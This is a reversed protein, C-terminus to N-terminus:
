VLTPADLWAPAAGLPTVTATVLEHTLIYWWAKTYMAVMDYRTFSKNFCNVLPMAAARNTIGLAPMLTSEFPKQAPLNALLYPTLLTPSITDFPIPAVWKIHTHLVNDEAINVREVVELVIAVSPEFGSLAPKSVLSVIQWINDGEVWVLADPQRQVVNYLVGLALPAQTLQSNDLECVPNATIATAHVSHNGIADAAPAPVAAIAAPAASTSAVAAQTSTTAPTTTTPPNATGAASSRTSVASLSIAPNTSAPPKSTSAPLKSTSASPQATSATKSSSSAKMAALLAHAAKAASAAPPKSAAPAAASESRGSATPTENASTTETSAILTADGGPKLGSATSARTNPRTGSTTAEPEPATAKPAPGSIANSEEGARPLTNAEHFPGLPHPSELAGEVLESILKRISDQNM